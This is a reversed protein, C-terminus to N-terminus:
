VNRVNAGLWCPLSMPQELAWLGRNMLMAMVMRRM